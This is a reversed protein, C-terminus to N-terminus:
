RMWLLEGGTRIRLWISGTWAERWDWKELYIKINEWRHRRRGLPRRGQPKRVFVTDAEKIQGRVHCM